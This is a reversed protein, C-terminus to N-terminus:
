SGTVEGIIVTYNKGYKKACKPCTTYWMYTKKSTLGKSDVAKNFDSMWRGTDKFPGEYVKSYYTGSLSVNEANHIQKDVEVYLDMNWQSTHDSLSLWNKAEGGGAEIKKMMRTVVKGFGVPMYFFTHVKDRIFQKNDWMSIKDDWPMPEFPPCCETEDVKTKKPLTQTEM